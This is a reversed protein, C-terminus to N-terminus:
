WRGQQAGRKSSQGGTNSYVETDMVLINVNKGLAYARKVGLFDSYADSIEEIIGKENVIVVLENTSHIISTSAQRIFVFRLIRITAYPSIKGLFLPTFVILHFASFM